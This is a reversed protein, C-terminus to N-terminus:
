AYGDYLTIGIGPDKDETALGTDLWISFIAILILYSRM